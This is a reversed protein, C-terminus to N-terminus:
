SPSSGALTLYLWEEPSSLCLPVISTRPIWLAKQAAKKKHCNAIRFYSDWKVPGYLMCYRIQISSVVIKYILTFYFCKFLGDKEPYCMEHLVINGERFRAEWVQADLWLIDMKENRNISYMLLLLRWHKRSCYLSPLLSLFAHLVLVKKSPMLHYWGYKVLVDQHCKIENM